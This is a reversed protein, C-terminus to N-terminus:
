PASLNIRQPQYEIILYGLKQDFGMIPAVLILNYNPDEEVIANDTNLLNAPIVESAQLGEQRKNTSITIQGDNNVVFINQFNREKVMDAILLDIQEDNGRLMEARISWVLPKSLLTLMSRNMQEIETSATEIIRNNERTARFDVVLYVIFIIILSILITTLVSHKKMFSLVSNSKQEDKMETEESKNSSEAKILSKKREM